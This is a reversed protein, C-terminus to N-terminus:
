FLLTNWLKAWPEGLSLFLSRACDYEAIRQPSDKDGPPLASCRELCKMVSKITPNKLYTVKEKAGVAGPIKVVGTAVLTRIKAQLCSTALLYLGVVTMFAELRKRDTIKVAKHAFRCDKLSRWLQEVKVNGKYFNSLELASLNSEIDTTVLMYMCEQNIRFEIYPKDLEVSCKVRLDTLRTTNLDPNKCKRGRKAQVEKGEYIYQNTKPDTEACVSVLKTKSVVKDFHAKADQECKFKRNLEKRVRALEDDAARTITASKTSKLAPNFYVYGRVKIGEYLENSVPAYRMGEPENPDVFQMQEVSLESMCSRCLKRGDPVRTIIHLNANLVAEFCNQTCGASDCVLYKLDDYMEAISPLARKAVDAFLTKDSANGDHVSFYLPVGNGDVISIIIIQGLDPRHAKSNGNKVKIVLNKQEQAELSIKIPKGDKCGIEALKKLESQQEPPLKDLALSLVEKDDGDIHHYLVISTSDLHMVVTNSLVFFRHAQNAFQQFFPVCGYDYLSDLATLIVDKQAHCPLLDPRNLMPGVPVDRLQGILDYIATYKGYTLSLILMALAEGHSINHARQKIGLREDAFNIFGTANIFGAVLAMTGFFRVTVDSLSIKNSETHNKNM